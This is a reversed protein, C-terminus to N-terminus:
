GSNSTGKKGTVLREVLPVVIIVYLTMMLTGVWTQSIGLWAALPNGIVVLWILFAGTSIGVQHWAVPETSDRTMIAVWFPTLLLLFMGLWLGASARSAEPVVGMVTHYTTIAETPVYTVLRGVLSSSSEEGGEDRRATTRVGPQGPARPPFPTDAVPTEDPLLVRPRLRPM